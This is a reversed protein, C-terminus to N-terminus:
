WGFGYNKKPNKSFAGFARSTVAQPMAGPCGFGWRMLPYIVYVRYEDIAHVSMQANRTMTIFPQFLGAKINCLAIVQRPTYHLLLHVRHILSFSSGCEYVLLRIM